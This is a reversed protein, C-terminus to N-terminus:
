ALSGPNISYCQSVPNIIDEPIFQVGAAIDAWHDLYLRLWILNLAVSARKQM